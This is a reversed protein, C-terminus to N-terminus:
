GAPNSPRLIIRQRPATTARSCNGPPLRKATCSCRDHRYIRISHRARTARRSMARDIGSAELGRPTTVDTVLDNPERDPAPQIASRLRARRCLSRLVDARGRAVWLVLSDMSGSVVAATAAGHSWRLPVQRVEANIQEVDVTPLRRRRLPRNVSEPRITWSSIGAANNVLAHNRRITRLIQRAAEVAEYVAV